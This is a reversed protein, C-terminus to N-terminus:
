PTEIKSVLESIDSVPSKFIVNGSQIYTKVKAFDLFEYLRKLEEMKIKKQGSVNIGCLMSIYRTMVRNM